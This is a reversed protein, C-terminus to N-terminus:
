TCTVDDSLGSVRQKDAGDAFIEGSVRCIFARRVGPSWWRREEGGRDIQTLFPTRVIGDEIREDKKRQSPGEFKKWVLKHVFTNECRLPHPLNGHFWEEIIIWWRREVLFLGINLNIKM